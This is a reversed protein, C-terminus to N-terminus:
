EAVWAHGIKHPKEPRTLCATEETIVSKHCRDLIEVRSRLSEPYHHAYRMTMAITKHGSLKKGGPPENKM